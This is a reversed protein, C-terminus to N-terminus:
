YLSKSTLFSKHWTFSVNWLSIWDRVRDVTGRQHGLEHVGHHPAALLGRRLPNEILAHFVQLGFAAVFRQLEEFLGHFVGLGHQFYLGAAYASGVVLHRHFHIRVPAGRQGDAPDHTIRALTAFFAHHVLQGVFQQVGGVTAARRNLFLFVHVAHRFGVLRKCM